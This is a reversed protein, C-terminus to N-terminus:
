RAPSLEFRTAYFDLMYPLPERPDIEPAVLRPRSRRLVGALVATGLLTVLPAGPCDQRGHSLHNFRYDDGGTVWREPRLRDADAVDDANRHNFVNLIMVQTGEDLDEGALTTPRTTERAILPVTPWLRMAEQLCGDLYAMGQVARADAPDAAVAEARAKEGVEPDAAIVALARFANMGLTDRTAFMWHPIQHVVRTTPTQPADAFRALLSGPEPHAVYRELHGYFEYFADGTSLGVLRNAEGMLSELQQTLEHDDRARDGFIVRLTIADWLAIWADWDLTGPAPLHEVEEAVVRVFREADPHVDERAALVAENFARRDEWEEGRSVTLADPQFHGMGKGKAGGDSAYVDASRDLVEHLAGDGWVAVIRGGLLRLGEGGYKRRLGQLTEVTRRDADIATLLKMAGKRPSFLGRVLAPLLGTVVVQLSEPLSAAPLGGGRAPSTSGNAASV